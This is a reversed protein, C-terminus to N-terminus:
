IDDWHEKTVLEKIPKIPLPKALYPFLEKKDGYLLSYVHANSVVKKVYNRTEIFPIHEIFEDTDRNGFSYLWGYVRHPGANYAAASLPIVGDFKEMLRSLYRSGIIIATEPELLKLPSFNKDNILQAVKYGTFPMVQMLGLAGVPSIVDQRYQSEARMIGWILEQPVKYNKSSKEVFNAFARPYTHEWIYRVGDIGQTARQRGFTIQGIYSSRYFNGINAYESMLTNLYERNQTKREIEFLDWRAWDDQGVIMLDRAREFRKMLVPSSFSVVKETDDKEEDESNANESEGELESESSQSESNEDLAGTIISEESVDEDDSDVSMQSSYEDFSPMLFDSSSFRDFIRVRVRSDTIAIQVPDIVGIQKIRAQAALSYFGFLPDKSLVKFQNRAKVKNGLRLQNMAMWYQLRDSPVKKWQKKSKRKSLEMKKMDAYSESFNGKLYKIWALNWDIERNLSSGRFVKQYEKFKETAGDYDQFMYSLFAAQFLAQKGLKSRPSLRYALHYSDVALKSEGARAATNAFQILFNFQSSKKEYWPRLVDLAKAVEGELAFFQAQIQDGLFKESESLRSKMINIEAQAEKEKGAFLMYRVRSKFDPLAANCDSPAGLFENTALDMNWLSIKPYAPYKVYLKKLWTCKARKNNLGQEATALDYIVDPYKENQRLKKELYVLLRRAEKYSKREIWIKALYSNVEYQMRQNLSLGLLEKFHTVAADYDKAEFEIEALYFLGYEKLNSRGVAIQSLDAKAKDLEGIKRYIFARNYIALIQEEPTSVKIKEDTLLKLAGKLDNRSQLDQVKGLFNTEAFSVLSFTITLAPLLRKSFNILLNKHFYLIYWGQISCFKM